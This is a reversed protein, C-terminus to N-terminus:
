CNIISLILLRPSTHLFPVVLAVPILFNRWKGIMHMLCYEANFDKRFYCQNFHKIETYVDKFM